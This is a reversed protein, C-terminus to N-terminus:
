KGFDDARLGKKFGNTRYNSPTFEDGALLVLHNGKGTGAGGPFSIWGDGSGAFLPHALLCAIFLTLLPRIVPTLKQSNPRVGQGQGRWHDM